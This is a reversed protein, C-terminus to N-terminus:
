RFMERPDFNLVMDSWVRYKKIPMEYPQCQWVARLAADSAAAFFPSSQSNMLQPPRALMGDVKLKLRMRVVLRDAGLGGVPPNWCRSVQARFADIENMTMRADRGDPRGRGPSRSKPPIKSSRPQAAKKQRPAANPIKNLLASIKDPDFVKKKRKKRAPKKKPLVKM